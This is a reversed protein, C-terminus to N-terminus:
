EEDMPASPQDVRIVEGHLNVVIKFGIMGMYARGTEPLGHEMLHTLQEDVNELQNNIVAHTFIDDSGIMKVTQEAILDKNAEIQEKLAELVQRDVQESPIHRKFGDDDIIYCAEDGVFSVDLVIDREDFVLGQFVARKSM